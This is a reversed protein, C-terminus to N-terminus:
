REGKETASMTLRASWRVTSGAPVLLAGGGDLGAGHPTTTPEIGLALVSSSWPEDPSVAPEQWILAHQLGEWSITASCDGGRVEIRLPHPRLLGIVRAPGRRNMVTWRTRWDADPASRSPLGDYELAVPEAAEPLTMSVSGGTLVPALLHGGLILHEAIIVSRPGSTRNELRSDVEIVDEDILRWRRHISLEGDRSQWRLTVSRRDHELVVWPSQSAEGHFFPARGPSPQGATPACLQWGGRWREVWSREDQAPEISPAIDDAWPTRALVDRGRWSFRELVGGEAPRVVASSRGLEILLGSSTGTPAPRGPPSM